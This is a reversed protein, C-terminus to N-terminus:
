NRTLHPDRELDGSPKREPRAGNLFLRVAERIFESSRRRWEAEGRHQHKQFFAFVSGGLLAAAAATDPLAIEGRAVREDLLRRLFCPGREMITMLEQFAEGQRYSEMIVMRVFLRNEWLHDAMGNFVRVLAEEVPMGGFCRELDIAEPCPAHREIVARLLDRKTPFYKFILGETVGAATAIQRTSTGDYGHEAFLALAVDLL